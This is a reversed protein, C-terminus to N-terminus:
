VDESISRAREFLDCIADPIQDQTCTRALEKGFKPKTWNSRSEGVSYRYVLDYKLAESFKRDQERLPEIDAPEWADEDKPWGNQLAQAIVENSFADELERDGVYLLHEEIFNEGVDGEDQFVEEILMALNSEETDSDLFVITLEKRNRKLLKLFEKAAGNNKVNIIQIGDELSSHDYLKRYLIPLANEETDGEVLIFCREYFMLTNTIGLERALQRLFDEVDEDGDTELQDVKTCGNEDLNLRRIHQAPVRNIMPPSHTCLIAQTRTKEEQVISSIARYMRRQADYDLNTDPEDYGRIVPPLNSDETAQELTIDCDWDLVATLMRRKTGDGTRSLDHPGRGHDIRFQGMRLARTFDIIPEYTLNQLQSDYKRIYPLLDRVKDNLAQKARSEVQRLTAVCQRNEEDEYVVNRFVQQLTRDILSAPDEYEMASYRYFSPLFDGWGRRPAEIWIEVTPLDEEEVYDRLWEARQAKNSLDDLASVDLREILQKQDAASLDKDFDSVQLEEDEPVRCLYETPIEIVGDETFRYAKRIKLVNDVAHEVAAKDNALDISFELTIEIRGVPEEAGAPHYFDAEEPKDSNLAINLLDLVSSKGADNPGILLTLQDDFHIEIDKLSRFGQAKLKELIV